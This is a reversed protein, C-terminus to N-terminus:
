HHQQRSLKKDAFTSASTQVFDYTRRMQKMIVSQTPWDSSGPM